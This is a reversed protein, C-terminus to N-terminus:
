VIMFTCTGVYGFHRAYMNYIYLHAKTHEVSILGAGETFIIVTPVRRTNAVAATAAVTTINYDVFGDDCATLKVNAHKTGVVYM